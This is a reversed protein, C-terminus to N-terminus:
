APGGGEGPSVISARDADSTDAHEGKRGAREAWNARTEADNASIRGLEQRLRDAETNLVHKATFNSAGVLRLEDAIEVLRRRIM